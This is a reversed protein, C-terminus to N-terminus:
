SDLNIRLIWIEKGLNNKEKVIILIQSKYLLYLACM